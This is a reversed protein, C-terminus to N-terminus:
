LEHVIFINVALWFQSSQHFKKSHCDAGVGVKISVEPSITYKDKYRKNLIYYRAGGKFHSGMEASIKLATHTLLPRNLGLIIIVVIVIIININADVGSLSLQRNIRLKHAATKFYRLHIYKVQQQKVNQLSVLPFVSAKTYM